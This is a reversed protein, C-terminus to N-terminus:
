EIVSFERDAVQEGGRTAVVTYTGAPMGDPTVLESYVWDRDTPETVTFQTTIPEDDTEGQWSFEFTEGEEADAVPIAAFINTIGADFSDLDNAPEGTQENITTTLVMDGVDDDSDATFSFILVGLAIAILVVGGVIFLAPRVLNV